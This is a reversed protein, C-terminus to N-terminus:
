LSFYTILILHLTFIITHFPILEAL